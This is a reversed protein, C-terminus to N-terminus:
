KGAKVFNLIEDTLRTDDIKVGQYPENEQLPAYIAATKPLDIVQGLELLKWALEEPMPGEAWVTTAIMAAAIALASKALAM